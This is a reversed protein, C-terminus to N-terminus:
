QILHLLHCLKPTWILTKEWCNQMKRSGSIETTWDLSLNLLESEETRIFYFSNIQIFKHNEAIWSVRGYAARDVAPL